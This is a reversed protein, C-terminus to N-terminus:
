AEHYTLMVHLCGEAGGRAAGGGAARGAAGAAGTAPKWLAAVPLPAAFLKSIGIRGHQAIVALVVGYNTIFTWSTMSNEEKRKVCPLRM